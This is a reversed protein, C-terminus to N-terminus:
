AGLHGPDTWDNWGIWRGYEDVLGIRDKTLVPIGDPGGKGVCLLGTMLVTGDASFLEIGTSGGWRSQGAPVGWYVNDTTRSAYSYRGSMFDELETDLVISNTEAQGTQDDMRWTSVSIVEAKMGQYETEDPILRVGDLDSIAREKLVTGEADLIVIRDKTWGLYRCFRGDSTEELVYLDRYPGSILTGEMDCLWHPYPEEEDLDPGIGIIRYGDMRIVNLDLLGLREWPDARYLTTIGHDTFDHLGCYLGRSGCDYLRFEEESGDAHLICRPEANLVVEASYGPSYLCATMYGGVPQPVDFREEMPFGGLVNGDEDLVGLLDFREDLAIVKHEDLKKMYQIGEAKVEGTVLDYLTGVQAPDTIEGTDAEDMTRIPNRLLLDGLCQEYRYPAEELVVRGELDYLVCGTCQAASGEEEESYHSCSYYRVEDTLVDKVEVPVQQYPLENGYRDIAIHWEIDPWYVYYVPGAYDGYATRQEETAPLTQVPPLEPSSETQEESASETEAVASTGETQEEPVAANCASLGLLLILILVIDLSRRM